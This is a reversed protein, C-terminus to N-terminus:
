NPTESQESEGDISRGEGNAVLLVVVLAIGSVMFNRLAAETGNWKESQWMAFWEGGITLFAGAWLLISMLLGLVSFRQAREFSAWSRLSRAGVVTAVWCVVATASEWFIIGIYAIHYLTVNDVARWMLDKDRFTTDMSMVGKVFAFNTYYDTINGFAVLSFYLAEIGLLVIIALRGWILSTRGPVREHHELESPNVM